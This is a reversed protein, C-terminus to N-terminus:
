LPLFANLLQLGISERFAPLSHPSQPIERVERDASDQWHGPQIMAISQGGERQLQLVSLTATRLDAGFQEM